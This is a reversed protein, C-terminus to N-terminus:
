RILVRWSLKLNTLTMAFKKPGPQVSMSVYAAPYAFNLFLKPEVTLFNLLKLQASDFVNIVTEANM